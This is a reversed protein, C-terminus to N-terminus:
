LHTPLSKTLHVNCRVSRVSLAIQPPRKAGLFFFILSFLFFLFSSRLVEHHRPRVHLHAHALLTAEIRHIVSEICLVNRSLNRVRFYLFFRVSLKTVQQILAHNLLKPLSKGSSHHLGFGLLIKDRNMWIGSTLGIFHAHIYIKM